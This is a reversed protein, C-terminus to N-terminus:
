TSILLDTKEISAQREMIAINSTDMWGDMWRNIWGDM